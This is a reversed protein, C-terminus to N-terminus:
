RLPLHIHLTDIIQSKSKRVKDEFGKLKYEAEDRLRKLAVIELAMQEAELKHLAKVLELKRSLTGNQSIVLAVRDQTDVSNDLPDLADLSKAWTRSSDSITKYLCPNNAEQRVFNRVLVRVSNNVGEGDTSQNQESSVLSLSRPQTRLAPPGVDFCSREVRRKERETSQNDIHETNQTQGSSVSSLSTNHSSSAPEVGLAPPDDPDGNDFRVVRRKKQKTSQSDLDDHGYNCPKRKKQGATGCELLLEPDLVRKLLWGVRGTHRTEAIM